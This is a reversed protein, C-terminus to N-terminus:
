NDHTFTSLSNYYSSMQCKGEGGELQDVNKLSFESTNCPLMYYM